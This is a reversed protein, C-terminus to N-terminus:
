RMWVPSTMTWTSCSFTAVGSSMLLFSSANFFAPRIVAWSTTCFLSPLTRKTFTVM